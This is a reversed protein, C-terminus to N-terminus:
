NFSDIDLLRQSVTTQMHFETEVGALTVTGVLVITVRPQITDSSDEAGIVTFGSRATDIDIDASTSPLMDDIDFSDNTNEKKYITGNGNSDDDIFYMIQNEPNSLQAQWYPEFVIANCSVGDQTNQTTGNAVQLITPPILGNHCYLDAGLRISRAMDEMLFSLGDIATRMSQTKRHTSNVGLIAGIGITMIVSFLGVAIMAEVLTFGRNHKFIKMM